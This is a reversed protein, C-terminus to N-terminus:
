KSASGNYSTHPVVPFGGELGPASPHHITYNIESGLLKVHEVTFFFDHKFLHM